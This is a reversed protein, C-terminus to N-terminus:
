IWTKWCIKVVFPSSPVPHKTNRPPLEGWGEESDRTTLTM